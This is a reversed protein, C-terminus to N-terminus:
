KTDAEHSIGRRKMLHVNTTAADAEENQHDVEEGREHGGSQRKKGHKSMFDTTDPMFETPKLWEYHTGVNWLFLKPQICITREICHENMVVPPLEPIEHMIYIQGGLNKACVDAEMYGGPTNRQSMMDVYTAYSECEQGNPDKGNWRREYSYYSFRLKRACEERLRRHSLDYPAPNGGRKWHSYAQTIAEFLSNGDNEVKIKEFGPPVERKPQEGCEESTTAAAVVAAPVLVVAAAAANTHPTTCTSIHDEEEEAGSFMEAPPSDTSPACVERGVGVGAEEEDVKVDANAPPSTPPSVSPPPPSHPPPPPPPPQGGRDPPLPLGGSEFM